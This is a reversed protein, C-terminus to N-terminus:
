CKSKFKKVNFTKYRVGQDYELLIPMLKPKKKYSLNCSKHVSDEVLGIGLFFSLILYDYAQFTASKIEVKKLSCVNVPLRWDVM